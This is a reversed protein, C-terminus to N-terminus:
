NNKYMAAMGEFTTKLDTRMASTQGVINDMVSFQKLYFELMRDMQESLRALQDEYRTVQSNQTKERSAITGSSRLMRDLTVVADGAVGAAAPSYVSQNETDASFLTVVEDFHDTVASTFTSEDLTLVGDKDFSLGLDRAATINAGPTSSTDTILRRLQNRLTSVYSEGVLVGGFDPDESKPDSLVDLANMTDNFVTVLDDVKGRLADVDRSLDIRAAGSTVSNLNFTVGEIVDDLVNTARTMPLGNFTFAADQATQAASLFSVDGVSSALTFAKASGDQGTVVVAYPTSADGTNVLQASVGLGDGNGDTAANIADVVGQPTTDTVTITTAAGGNLAFDIGFAVGGNLAEDVTAFGSSATVQPRALQTVQLQVSAASAASTTSVSIATPQSITAKLVGFDSVDNLEAFAAKLTSLSYRIASYGSIRANSADIRDQLRKEQPERTATVLDNALQQIDIGSGAGLTGVVNTVM